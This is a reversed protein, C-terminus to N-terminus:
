NDTNTRRNEKLVLRHDPEVLLGALGGVSSFIAAVLVSSTWGYRHAIVPTLLATLAGGWSAGMNM